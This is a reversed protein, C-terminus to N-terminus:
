NGTSLVTLRQEDISNWVEYFKEITNQRILERTEASVNELEMAESHRSSEHPDANLLGELLSDRIGQIDDARNPYEIRYASIYDEILPKAKAPNDGDVIRRIRRRLGAMGRRGKDLRRRIQRDIDARQYDHDTYSGGAMRWANSLLDRRPNLGVATELVHQPGSDPLPRPNFLDPYFSHGIMAEFLTKVLPNFQGAIKSIVAKPPAKLAALMRDGPSGDYEQSTAAEWVQPVGVLSHFDSMAGPWAIEYTTNTSDRYFIPMRLEYRNKPTRTKKEEDDGLLASIASYGLGFAHVWLLMRGINFALRLVAGPTKPVVYYGSKLIGLGIRTVAEHKTVNDVKALEIPHLVANGLMKGMKKANTEQWRWFALIGMADLKDAVSTIDSYDGLADRAMRGALDEIIRTVRERKEKVSLKSKKAYIVNHMEEIYGKIISPRTAGFGGMKKVFADWAILGYENKISDLKMYLNLFVAYREANEWLASLNRAGRMYAHVPKTIANKGKQLNMMQLSDEFVGEIDAEGFPNTKEITAVTMGTQLVDNRLAAGMLPSRKDYEKALNGVERLARERIQSFTNDLTTNGIIADVSGTRNRAFFGLFRTPFYLLNMRFAASAGMGLKALEGTPNPRSIKNLTEAVDKTIIIERGRGVVIAADSIGELAKEAWLLAEASGNGFYDNAIKEIAEHAEDTITKGRVINLKTTTTAADPQWLVVDDRQASELLKDMSRTEIWNDGLAAMVLGRRENIAKFLMAAASKLEAPASDWELLTNATHFINGEEFLEDVRGEEIIAAIRPPLYGTNVARGSPHSPDLYARLEGNAKALKYRIVKYNMLLPPLEANKEAFVQEIAKAMSRPNRIGIGGVEPVVEAAAAKLANAFGLNNSNRARERVKPTLNYKSADLWNLLRQRAIDTYAKQMWYFEEEILNMNIDLDSGERKRIIPAHVKTGLGQSQIDKRAYKIVQHRYYHTNAADRESLVGTDVLEKRIDALIRARTEYARLMAENRPKHFEAESDALHQRLAASLKEPTDYEEKNYGQPMGRYRMNQSAKEYLKERDEEIKKTSYGEKRAKEALHEDIQKKTQELLLRNQDDMWILDELLLRNSLMNMQADTLDKTISGVADEARQVANKHGNRYKLLQDTLVVDKLADGELTPFTELLEKKAQRLREMITPGTGGVGEFAAVKRAVQGDTHNDFTGGLEGQKLKEKSRNETFKGDAIEEFLKYGDRDVPWGMGSLMRFLNRIFIAMKTFISEQAKSGAKGKKGEIIDRRNKILWFKFGEAIAEEYGEESIAPGDKSDEEAAYMFYREPINFQEIWGEQVALKKLMEWEAKTFLDAAKLAHIFEHGAVSIMYEISKGKEGTVVTIAPNEGSSDMWGTATPLLKSRGVRTKATIKTHKIGMEELAGIIAKEAESPSITKSPDYGLIYQIAPDTSLKLQDSKTFGLLSEGEGDQSEEFEDIHKKINHKKINEVEDLISDVVMRLSDSLAISSGGKINVGMLDHNVFRRSRRTDLWDDFDDLVQMIKQPNEDNRSALRAVLNALDARLKTIARQSGNRQISDYLPSDESMRSMDAAIIADNGQRMNDGDLVIGVKVLDRIIEAVETQEANYDEVPEDKEMFNKLKTKRKSDVEDDGMVVSDTMQSELGSVQGAVLLNMTLLRNALRVAVRQEIEHDSYPIVMETVSKMGYRIARGIQQVFQVQNWPLDISLVKRPRKGDLDHLSLGTGGAATTILIVRKSGSQFMEKNAERRKASINGHYEVFDDEFEKRFLEMPSELSEDIGLNHFAWAMAETSRSFPPATGKGTARWIEMQSEIEPYTFKDEEKVKGASNIRSWRGIRMPNVTNFFVLVQSKEDPGHDEMMVKAQEVAEAVKARENLFKMTNTYRMNIMRIDSGQLGPFSYAQEFALHVRNILMGLKRDPKSYKAFKIDAMEPSIRLPRYTYLGMDRLALRLNIKDTNTANLDNLSANTGDSGMTVDVGFQRIWGLFGKNIAAMNENAPELYGPDGPRVEYDDFAGVKDLFKIDRPSNFPTASAFVSFDTQEMLKYAAEATLTTGQRSVIMHSEDFILIVKQGKDKIEKIKAALAENQADDMNAIKNYSLFDIMDLRDGLAPKMDSKVQSVLGSSPTLYIVKGVDGKEPKEKLLESLSAGLVYTKGSGTPLALIFGPVDDYFSRVIAAADKAQDEGVEQPIFGGEVGAFLYDFTEQTLYELAEIDPAIDSLADDTEDMEEMVQAVKRELASITQVTSRKEEPVKAEVLAKELKDTPDSKSEYHSGKKRGGITDRIVKMQERTFGGFRKVVKYLERDKDFTVGIGWKYLPSSRHERRKTLELVLVPQITRYIALKSKEEVSLIEGRKYKDQIEKLNSIITRALDDFAADDYGKIKNLIETSEKVRSYLDGDNQMTNSMESLNSDLPIESKQMAIATAQILELAPLFTDFTGQVLEVQKQISKDKKDKNLRVFADMRFMVDSLFDLAQGVSWTNGLSIGDYRPDYITGGTIKEMVERARGRKIVEHTLGSERMSDVVRVLDDYNVKSGDLLYPNEFTMKDPTMGLMRGPDRIHYAAVKLIDIADEVDRMAEDFKAKEAGELDGELELLGHKLSYAEQIEDQVKEMDRQRKRLIKGHAKADGEPATELEEADVYDKRIRAIVGSRLRKRLGDARKGLDEPIKQEPAPPPPQPKARPALVDSEKVGGPETPDHLFDPADRAGEDIEVSTPDIGEKVLRAEIEKGVEALFEDLQRQADQETESEFLVLEFDPKSFGYRSGGGVSSHHDKVRIKYHEQDGIDINRHHPDAEGKLVVDRGGINITWDQSYFKEWRESLADNEQNNEKIVEVASDVSDFFIYGDGMSFFLHETNEFDADTERVYQDIEYQSLGHEKLDFSAYVRGNGDFYELYAIGLRRLVEEKAFRYAKSSLEDGYEEYWASLHGNDGTEPDGLDKVKKLADLAAIDHDSLGEPYGEKKAGFGFWRTKIGEKDYAAKLTNEPNGGKDAKFVRRHEEGVNIEGAEVVVGDQENYVKTDIGMEKLAKRLAGTDAPKDQGKTLDGQGKEDFPGKEIEELVAETLKGAAEKVTMQKGAVKAGLESLIKSVPGKRYAYHDILSGVIKAKAASDKAKAGSEDSVEIGVSALTAKNAEAGKLVRASTRSDSKAAEVIKARERTASKATDYKGFLDETGQSGLQEADYILGRMHGMAEGYSSPPQDLFDEIAKRQIAESNKEGAPIAEGIAAAITPKLKTNNNYQSEYIEFVSDHLKALNRAHNVITNNDGFVGGMRGVEQESLNRMVNAADIITGSGQSINKVAGFIKAQEPTMDKSDIFIADLTIPPHGGRELRKALNVRQHGDVVYLDTGERYVTITDAFNPVWKKVTDLKGTRGKDDSKKFQFRKPDIKLESAEVPGQETEIDLMSEEEGEPEETETPGEEPKKASGIAKAASKQLNAAEKAVREAQATEPMNSAGPVIDEDTGVDTPLDLGKLDDIMDGLEEAGAGQGGEQEGAGLLSRGARIVEAVAEGDIGTEGWLEDETLQELASISEESPEQAVAGIAEEAKGRLAEIDEIRQAEEAEAKAQEEQEALRKDIEGAIVKKAPLTKILDDHEEEFESLVEKNDSLYSEYQQIIAMADATSKASEIARDLNKLMERARNLVENENNTENLEPAVVLTGVGVSLDATDYIISLIETSEEDKVTYVLTKDGDRQVRILAEQAGQKTLIVWESVGEPATAPNLEVRQGEQWQSLYEIAGGAIAAEQTSYSNQLDMGYEGLRERWGRELEPDASVAPSDTQGLNGSREMAELARVEQLAGERNEKYAYIMAAVKTDDSFWEDIEQQSKGEERLALLMWNYAQATDIFDQRQEEKTKNVRGGSLRSAWDHLRPIDKEVREYGGVDLAAMTSQLEANNALIERRTQAARVQEYTSAGVGITGSLGAAGALGGIASLAVDRGKVGRETGAGTSITEGIEQLPELMLEPAMRRATGGALGTLVEAAESFKSEVLEQAEEAMKEMDPSRDSRRLFKGDIMRTLGVRDGLTSFAAAPMTYLFDSASVDKREDNDMREVALRTNHVGFMGMATPLTLYALMEPANIPITELAFWGFNALGRRINGEEFDKLTRENDTFPEYGYDADRAAEWEAYEADAAEQTLMDSTLYEIYEGRRRSEESTKEAVYADWAEDDMGLKEKRKISAQRMRNKGSFRLAGITKSFYERFGRGANAWFNPREDHYESRGMRDLFEGKPTGPYRENFDLWLDHAYNDIDDHPLNRTIEHIRAADAPDGNLGAQIRALKLTYNNRAEQPRSPSVFPNRGQEQQEPPPTQALAPQPPRAPEPPPDGQEPPEQQQNNRGAARDAAAQRWEDATTVSPEPRTAAAYAGRIQSDTYPNQGNEHRIIYEGLRIVDDASELKDKGVARKAGQVYSQTDNETPPAYISVQDEVSHVGDKMRNLILRYMARLGNEPTNFVEFDEDGEDLKGLWDNQDSRRINGPNNNRIGRPTTTNM